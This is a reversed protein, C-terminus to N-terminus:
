TQADQPTNGSARFTPPSPPEGICGDRSHSDLLLARITHWVHPSVICLIDQAHSGDIHPCSGRLLSAATCDTGFSISSTARTLSSRRLNSPDNSPPDLIHPPTKAVHAPGGRVEEELSCGSHLILMSIVFKRTFWPLQM